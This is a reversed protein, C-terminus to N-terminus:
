GRGERIAAARFAELRTHADSLKKGTDPEIFVDRGAGISHQIMAICSALDDALAEVQAPLAARAEAALQAETALILYPDAAAIAEVAERAADREAQMARLAAILAPVIERAESSGAVAEAEAILRETDTTM